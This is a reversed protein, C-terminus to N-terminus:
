IVGAAKAAERMALDPSQRALGLAIAKMDLKHAAEFAPEGIRHQEQHRGACLPITWWDSPKMGAGGDTGTRVHCCEVIWLEWPKAEWIAQAGIHCECAPVACELSRIFKRHRPWERQPAREIGSRVRERRKPLKMM